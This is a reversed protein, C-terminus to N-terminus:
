KKALKKTLKRAPEEFIIMKEYLDNIIQDARNLIDNDTWIKTKITAINKTIILSSKKYSEKKIEFSSNQISRNGINGNKSNKAELLTLNGINNLLKNNENNKKPMIHELDYDNYNTKIYDNEIKMALYYYCKKAVDHKIKQIKLNKFKEDDYLDYRVLINKFTYRIKSLANNSDDCKIILNACDVMNKKITIVNINKNFLMAIIYYVSTLEILEDLMNKKFKYYYPVLIYHLLEFISSNILIEGYKTDSIDKILQDVLSHFKEIKEFRKEHLDNSKNSFIEKYLGVVNSEYNFKEFYLEGYLTFLLLPKKSLKLHSASLKIKEFSEYCKNKANDNFNGLIINRIIDNDELKKGKNNLADFIKVADSEEYFKYQDFYVNDMLFTIFDFININNENIIKKLTQKCIYFGNYIKSVNKNLKITDEIHEHTNCIRNKQDQPIKKCILIHREVDFKYLSKLECHNCCYKPKDDDEIHYHDYILDKKDNMMNILSENDNINSCEINAIGKLKENQITTKDNDNLYYPIKFILSNILSITNNNLNDIDTEELIKRLAILILITTITRQQGDWLVWQKNKDDICNFTYIFLGIWYFEKNNFKAYADEIFEEIQENEWQYCRQNCPIFISKGCIVEKLKQKQQIEYPVQETM